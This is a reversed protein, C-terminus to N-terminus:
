LQCPIGSAGYRDWVISIFTTMRDGTEHSNHRSEQSFPPSGDGIHVKQLELCAKGSIATLPSRRPGPPGEFGHVVSDLHEGEQGM